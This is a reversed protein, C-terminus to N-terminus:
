VSYVVIHLRYGFVFIYLFFYCCLTSSSNEFLTFYIEFHTRSSTVYVSRYFFVICQLVNKKSNAKYNSIYLRFFFSITFLVIEDLVESKIIRKNCEFLYELKTTNINNNRNLLGKTVNL